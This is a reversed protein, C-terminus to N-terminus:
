FSEAGFDGLIPMAPAFEMRGRTMPLETASLLVLTYVSIPDALWPPSSHIGIMGDVDEADGLLPRRKSENLTARRSSSAEAHM